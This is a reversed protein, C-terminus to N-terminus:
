EQEEDRAELDGIREKLESVQRRLALAQEEADQAKLEKDKIAKARMDFATTLGSLKAREIKLQQELAKERKQQTALQQMMEDMADLANCLEDILRHRDDDAPTPVPLRARLHDRVEALRRMYEEFTSSM